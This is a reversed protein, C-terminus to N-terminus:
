EYRDPVDVIVYERPDTSLYYVGRAIRIIDGPDPATSFPTSMVLSGSAWSSAVGVGCTATRNEGDATWAEVQVAYDPWEVGVDTTLGWGPDAVTDIFSGGGTVLEVVLAPARLRLLGGMPWANLLVKLEHVGERPLWRRSIVQGRFDERDVDNTFDGDVTPFIPTVLTQHKLLAVYDGLGITECGSARVHLIPSGRWRSLTMSLVYATGEIGARQVNLHALDLETSEGRTADFDEISTTITAGPDWPTRGYTAVVQDSAGVEPNEFQVVDRLPQIEALTSRVNPAILRKFTLAGSETTALVYGRLRLLQVVAPIVSVPNGDWGLILRDCTASPDAAMLARINAIADDDTAWGLRASWASPFLNFRAADYSGPQSGDSFLLNAAVELIHLPGVLQAVALDGGLALVPIVKRAAQDDVEPSGILEISPVEWVNGRGSFLYAPTLADGNRVPAIALLSGSVSNQGTPDDNVTFMLNRDIRAGFQQGAVDVATRTDGIKLDDGLGLAHAAVLEIVSGDASTRPAKDLYGVWRQATGSFIRVVRRRWFTPATYVNAGAIHAQATTGYQGRTASFETASVKTVKIAESGIYLTEPESSIGPSTLTITTDLDSLGSALTAQAAVQQFLFRPRTVDDARLRISVRSGTFEGSQPDIEDASFQPLAALADPIYGILLLMEGGYGYRGPIGDITFHLTTM